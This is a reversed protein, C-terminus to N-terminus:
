QEISILKGSLIDIKYFEKPAWGRQEKENVVVGDEENHMPGFNLCLNFYWGMVSYSISHMM